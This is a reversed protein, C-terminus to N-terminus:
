NLTHPEQEARLGTHILLVTLLLLKFHQQSKGEHTQVSSSQWVRTLRTSTLGKDFMQLTSVSNKFTINGIM